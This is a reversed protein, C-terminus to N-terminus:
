NDSGKWIRCKDVWGSFHTAKIKAGNVGFPDNVEYISFEPLACFHWRSHVNGHTVHLSCVKYGTGLCQLERKSSTAGFYLLPCLFSLVLDTHIMSANILRKKKLSGFGVLWLGLIATWLHGERLRLHTINIWSSSLLLNSSPVWRTHSLSM